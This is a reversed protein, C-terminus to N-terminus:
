QEEILSRLCPLLFDAIISQRCAFCSPILKRHVPGEGAHSAQCRLTDAGICLGWLKIQMMWQHVRSDDSAEEAGAAAHCGPLTKGHSSHATSDLGWRMLGWPRLPPTPKIENVLLTASLIVALLFVTDGPAIFVTDPWWSCRWLLSALDM